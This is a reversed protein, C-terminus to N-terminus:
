GFRASLVWECSVLTTALFCVIYFITITIIIIIISLPHYDLRILM